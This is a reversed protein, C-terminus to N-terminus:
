EIFPQFSSYNKNFFATLNTSMTVNRLYALITNCNFTLFISLSYVSYAFNLFNLSLRNFQFLYTLSLLILLPKPMWHHSWLTIQPSSGWIKYSNRLLLHSNSRFLIYKAFIGKSKYFVNQNKAYSHKELCRGKKFKMRDSNAM